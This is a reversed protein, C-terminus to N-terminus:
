CGSAPSPPVSLAFSDYGDGSSYVTNRRALTEAYRSDSVAKPDAPWLHAGSTTWSSAVLMACTPVSGGSLWVATPQIGVTRAYYQQGIRTMVVDSTWSEPVSEAAFSAAQFESETTTSPFTLTDLDVYAVPATVVLTSLVLGVLVPRRWRGLMSPRTPSEVTAAGIAALGVLPLHAFTQTRMVTAFYEPTLSATLGFGVLALPAALLAMVIVPGERDSDLQPAAVAAIAAPVIYVALLFALARPSAVTGPFVPRAANVLVVAVWILVPTLVVALQRRRAVTRFWWIGVAMAVLWAVFLGPHATVRDVYPVVFGLRGALSYYGPFYVWFGGIGATAAALKRGSMRRRAAVLWAVLTTGAVWTSFTHTLPFVGLILVVIGLWANRGSDTGRHFALVLIPILLFALAEEDPVGTRRLYLGDVALGLGVAVVALRVSSRDFGLDAAFRRVIAMGAVVSAAGIVAVAPQAIRLPAIGSVSGAAALFTAFVLNDARMEGVSLQGAALADRAQAAYAIGDLTAPYPSWALPLLRLGLALAFIVVVAIGTHREIM